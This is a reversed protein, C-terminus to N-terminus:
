IVLLKIDQIRWWINNPHYFWTSQYPFPMYCTHPLPSTCVSNQHPFMLSLPWKFSGPTSLFITNFTSRRSTPHPPVYIPDIQSLVPVPPPNKHIRYHVKPNRLIRPINQSDSTRNAEWSPSQQICYTLHRPVLICHSQIYRGPMSSSISVV